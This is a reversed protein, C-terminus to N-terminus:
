IWETMNEEKNKLKRAPSLSYRMTGQHTSKRLSAVSYNSNYPYILLASKRNIAENLRDMLRVLLVNDGDQKHM